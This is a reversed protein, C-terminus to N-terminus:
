VVQFLGSRRNLSLTSMQNSLFFVALVLLLRERERERERVSEREGEREREREREDPRQYKVRLTIQVPSANVAHQARGREERGAGFMVPGRSCCRNGHCRTGW